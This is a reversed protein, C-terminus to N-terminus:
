HANPSDVIYAVADARGRRALLAVVDAATGVPTYMCGQFVGVVPSTMATTGTAQMIYQSTAGQKQVPDGFGIFTSYTSQIARTAASLDAFRRGYRRHAQARFPGTHQGHRLSGRDRCM